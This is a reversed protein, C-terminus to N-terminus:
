SLEPFKKYIAPILSKQIGFYDRALNCLIRSMTDKDVVESLIGELSTEIKDFEKPWRTLTAYRMLDWDECENWFREMTPFKKLKPLADEWGEECAGTFKALGPTESWHKKM